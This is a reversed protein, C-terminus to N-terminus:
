NQEKKLQMLYEEMSDLRREWVARQKAMWDEAAKLTKPTLHYMRVRGKKESQVLGCSELVHLHQSFSPLAMDFPETLRTM